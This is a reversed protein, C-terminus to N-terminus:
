SKLFYLLVSSCNSNIVTLVNECCVLFETRITVNGARSEGTDFQTTADQHLRNDQFRVRPALHVPFLFASIGSVTM